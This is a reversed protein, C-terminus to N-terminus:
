HPRDPRRAHRGPLPHQGPGRGDARRRPRRRGLVPRAHLAPRPQDPGSRSRRARVHSRPRARHDAARAAQGGHRRLADHAARLQDAADRVGLAMVDLKVVDALPLLAARKSTITFDDLAITFGRDRLRAIAAAMEEDVEQGELIELTVRKAPLADALGNLLFARTVNIWAPHPGVVRELTLETLTNLVVSSTADDHDAIVARGQEDGTRFLLEYGVLRKHRDFIPQRAVYVSSM